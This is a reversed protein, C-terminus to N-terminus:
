AEVRLYYTKGTDVTTDTSLVYEGDVLEYWGEESPNETGEATVEEYTYTPTPEPEPQTSNSKVYEYSCNGETDPLGTITLEYGIPEGDVYQIDGFETVKAYPIVTRSVAGNYIQDIVYVRADLEKSNVKTLLGSELDGTVNETGFAVKRVAKNLVEILKFQFTEAFDTQTTMVTDGGWAKIAESDRTIAQTVGDESVYGLNEYEASLESDASTPVATGAPATWIAGGIKPKGASVNAVNSM